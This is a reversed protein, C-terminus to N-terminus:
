TAEPVTNDDMAEEDEEIEIGVLNYNVGRLSGVVIGADFRDSEEIKTSDFHPNYHKLINFVLGGAKVLASISNTGVRLRLPKTDVTNLPYLVLTFEKM